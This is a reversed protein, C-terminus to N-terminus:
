GEFEEAIRRKAYAALKDCYLDISHDSIPAKWPGNRNAFLAPWYWFFRYVLSPNSIVKLGIYSPGKSRRLFRM